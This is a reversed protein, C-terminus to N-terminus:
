RDMGMPAPSYAVPKKKSVKAFLIPNRQSPNKSCMGLCSKEVECCANQESSRGIQCCKFPCCAIAMPVEEDCPFAGKYVFMGARFTNKCCPGGKLIPPMIIQSTGQSEIKLVEGADDKPYMSASYLTQCCCGDISEVDLGVMDRFTDPKFITCMCSGCACLFHEDKNLTTRVQPEVVLRM